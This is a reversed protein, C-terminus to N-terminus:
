KKKDDSFQFAEKIIFKSADGTVKEVIRDAAKKDIKKSAGLKKDSFLERVMKTVAEKGGPIKNLVEKSIQGVIASAVESVIENSIEVKKSSDSENSGKALLMMVKMFNGSTDIINGVIVMAPNGDMVGFIIVGTGINNLGEGAKIGVEITGMKVAYKAGEDGEFIGKILQILPDSMIMQKFIGPDVTQNGNPDTLKIPNNGAYHYVDMNIANFVGGMGALKKSGDQQLYWYFDHETDYDNPKPFYKGEQL